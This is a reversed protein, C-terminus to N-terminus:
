SREGRRNREQAWNGAQSRIRVGSMLTVRHPQSDSHSECREYEGEPERNDLLFLEYRRMHIEIDGM